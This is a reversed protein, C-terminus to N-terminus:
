MAARFTELDDAGVVIRTNTGLYALDLSVNASSIRRAVV